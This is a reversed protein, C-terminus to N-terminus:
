LKTSPTHLSRQLRALKAKGSSLWPWASVRELVETKNLSFSGQFPPIKLSLFKIHDFLPPSDCTENKRYARQKVEHTITQM